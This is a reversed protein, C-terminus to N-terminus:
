VDALIISRRALALIIHAGVAPVMHYCATNPKRPFKDECSCFVIRQGDELRRCTVTYWTGSRGCVEYTGFDTVRLKMDVKAARAAATNLKSLKDLVIM